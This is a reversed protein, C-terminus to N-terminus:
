KVGRVVVFGLILVMLVVGFLSLFPIEYLNCGDTVVLIGGYVEEIGPLGTSGPSCKMVTRGANFIVLGVPILLAGLFFLGALSERRALLDRFVVRTM